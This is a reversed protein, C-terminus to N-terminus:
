RYILRNRESGGSANYGTEQRGAETIVRLSFQIYELAKNILSENIKNKRQTGAICRGTQKKNVLLPTKKSPSLAKLSDSMSKPLTKKCDDAIRSIIDNREDEM